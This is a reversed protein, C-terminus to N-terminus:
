DKKKGPVLNYQKNGKKDYQPLTIDGERFTPLNSYRENPHRATIDKQTQPKAVDGNKFPTFGKIKFEM